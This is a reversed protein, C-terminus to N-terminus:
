RKLYKIRKEDSIKSNDIIHKIAEYKNSHNIDLFIHEEIINM